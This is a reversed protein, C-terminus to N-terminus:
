VPVIPYQLYFPICSNREAKCLYIINIKTNQTNAYLTDSFDPVKSRIATQIFIQKM